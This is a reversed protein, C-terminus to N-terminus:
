PHEMGDKSSTHVTENVASWKQLSQKSYLLGASPSKWLKSHTRLQVQCICSVLKWSMWPQAAFSCSFWSVDHFVMNRSYKVFQAVECNGLSTQSLSCHCVHSRGRRLVFWACSKNNSPYLITIHPCQCLLVRLNVSQNITARIIQTVRTTVNNKYPFM